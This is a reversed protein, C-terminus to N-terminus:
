ITGMKKVATIVNDAATRNCMEIKIEEEIIKKDFDLKDLLFRHKIEFLQFIDDWTMAYIEFQEKMHVLFRKNKDQFSKYQDKIFDDVKNSVVFFKWSRMQSNFREEGKILDLYDEIQRFQKKGITVTPRKLEVIVNEELMNSFDSNDAIKHKRCMFIDPRRNREESNIQQENENGDLIYLYNSLAKEFTEDASVLHFQEGFLWYNEEIAVQIHNRETAFKKLDFVLNKLQEVVEFRNKIMKITRLIRSLSTTRLTQALQTREEESLTVIGSLISLINEREDTDLLLNLFGVCTQQQEKKLGKFIKPQICYIEKIVNLLDQKREKDYKNDRFRPLIGNKEYDAILKNAASEKVYKKEKEKLFSLLKKKLNKYVFDSQNKVNDIRPQPKEEFSFNDFYDSSIYISHFFNIANNNFSTLEKGLEYKNSNLYYYYFKDGIKKDWRIYSIEFEFDSIHETITEDEAILYEYDIAIGNISISYGKEKNLHLFWGFEQALFESFSPHTFHSSSINKLNYFFVETGTNGQQIIQNNNTEYYDKDGENITIDYQLISNDEQKYRTKWVAKSCFNIFSFRGKGMKGKVESTRQFTQRKQSDLFAGFTSEITSLNIGEGNDSISFSSIYGIENPKFQIDVNTAKADFGNWIYESIALKYDSPIGANDISKDGLTVKSRM